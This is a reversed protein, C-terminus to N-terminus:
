KEFDEPDVFTMTFYHMSSSYEEDGIKGSDGKVTHGFMIANLGDEVERDSFSVMGNESTTANGEEHGESCYLHVEVDKLPKGNWTIFVDVGSETDIAEAALGKSGKDSSATSRKKPLSGAVHSAYYNLCNGHYIGYTVATAFKKANQDAAKESVLGVFDDTEVESFTLKEPKGGAHAFIEAKAITGPLSYNRDTLGEGFFLAVKGEKNVVLWPFHAFSTKASSIFFLAVMALVIKKHM